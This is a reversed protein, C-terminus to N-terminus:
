ILNKNSIFEILKKAEIQYHFVKCAKEYGNKGIQLAMPYDSFVLKMQEAISFHNQPKALFINEGNSFYNEIDGVTTAIIPKATMCYEGLKWPFGYNAFGSNSRCVLLLDASNNILTLEKRSVLGLYTFQGQLGQENVSILVNKIPNYKSPKGTALLVSDPFYKTFYKLAKLIYPFGDKEGFTGSYVILNKKNYKKRFNEIDDKTINIKSEPNAIIPSLLINSTKIKEGYFNKLFSSIVIMGNVMKPLLKEAIQASWKKIKGKVGKFEISSSNKEVQWAYFPISFIFCTIIIPFYQIFDPSYLIVKDKKRRYKRKILFIASMMMGKLMFWQKANAPIGANKRIFFFPVNEYHGKNKVNGLEIANESGFPIMLFASEKNERIGKVILHCHATTAMGNPYDICSFILISM